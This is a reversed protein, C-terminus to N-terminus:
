HTLRLDIPIFAVARDALRLRVPGQDDFAVTGAQPAKMCPAQRVRELRALSVSLVGQPETRVAPIAFGHASDAVAFPSSAFVDDLAFEAAAAVVEVRLAQAVERGGIRADLNVLADRVEDALNEGPATRELSSTEEHRGKGVHLSLPSALLLLPRTCRLKM